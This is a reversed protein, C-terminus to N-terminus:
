TTAVLLSSSNMSASAMLGASTPVTKATNPTKLRREETRAPSTTGCHDARRNSGRGAQRTQNMQQMTM